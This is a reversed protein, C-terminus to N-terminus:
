RDQTYIILMLFGMMSLSKGFRKFKFPELLLASLGQMCLLMIRMNPQVFLCMVRKGEETDGASISAKIMVYREWDRGHTVYYEEMANFSLALAGAQGFPRLRM